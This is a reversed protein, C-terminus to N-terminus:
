LAIGKICRQLAARTWNEITVRESLTCAWTADNALSKKYGAGVLAAIVDEGGDTVAGPKLDARSRPAQTKATTARPLEAPTAVPADAARAVAADVAAVVLTQGRSARERPQAERVLKIGRIRDALASSLVGIAVLAAGLLMFLINSLQM